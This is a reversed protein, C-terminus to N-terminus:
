STRLTVVTSCEGMSVLSGESQVHEYRRMYWDSGEGHEEKLSIGEVFLCLSIDFV